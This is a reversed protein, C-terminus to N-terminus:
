FYDAIHFFRYRTRETWAPSDRYSWLRARSNATHANVLPEGAADFGTVITSHQYTGDGDWDYIIVDGINLEYPTQVIEAQLGNRSLALYRQLAHSVAWSYSWWERNNKRGQYWWGTERRGTYHMPAGGALICQSVYNTCDVAFKIYAPNPTNWYKDAYQKALQRNYRKKRSGQYLAEDYPTGHLLYTNLLPGPSQGMRSGDSEYTAAADGANRPPAGAQREQVVPEVRTIRWGSGTRQLSVQELVVQEEDYRDNLQEYTIRMEFRLDARVRDGEEYASLLRARTQSSLLTVNRRRRDYTITKLLRARRELYAMDDVATGLAGIQGTAASENMIQAYEYLVMKWDSSLAEGGKEGGDVVMLLDSNM